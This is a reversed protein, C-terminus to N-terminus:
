IRSGTRWDSAGGGWIRSGSRQNSWAMERQIYVRMKSKLLCKRVQSQQTLM